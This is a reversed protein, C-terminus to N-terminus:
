GVEVSSIGRAGMMRPRCFDAKNEHDTARLARPSNLGDRCAVDTMSRFRNLVSSKPPAHPLRLSYSIESDQARAANCVVCETCNTCITCHRSSTEVSKQARLSLIAEELEARLGTM